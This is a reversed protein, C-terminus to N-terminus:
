LIIGMFYCDYFEGDIILANKHVGEIVFGCKKYLHVASENDCRVELDIKTIGNEKAYSILQTISKYGIGLGWYKRTIMMGLTSVHKIRDRKNNGHIGCSGIINGDHLCVLHNSLRNAKWSAIVEKFDIPNVTFEEPSTALGATECLTKKIFEVLQKADKEEAVRIEIKVGNRTKV